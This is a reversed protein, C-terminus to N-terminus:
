FMCCKNGRSGARKKGDRIAEFEYELFRDMAPCALSPMLPPVETFSGEPYDMGMEILLLRAFTQCNWEPRWLKDQVREYLGLAMREVAELSLRTEGLYVKDLTEDLRIWLFDTM